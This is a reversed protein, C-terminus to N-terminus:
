LRHLLTTAMGSNTLKNLIKKWILPSSHPLQFRWPLIPQVSCRVFPAVIVLFVCRRQIARHIVRLRISIWSFGGGNFINAITRKGYLCYLNFPLYRLSDCLPAPCPFRSTSNHFTALFNSLHWRCCLYVQAAFGYTHLVALQPHILASFVHFRRVPAAIQEGTVDTSCDDVVTRWPKLRWVLRKNDM